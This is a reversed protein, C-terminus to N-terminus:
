NREYFLDKKIQPLKSNWRGANDNSYIWSIIDRNVETILDDNKHRALEIYKIALAPEILHLYALSINGYPM